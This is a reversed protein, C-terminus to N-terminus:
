AQAVLAVGPTRLVPEEDGAGPHHREVAHGAVDARAARDVDGDAGRVADLARAVIRDHEDLDLLPGVEALVVDLAEGVVVAADRGVSGAALRPAGRLPRESWESAQAPRTGLRESDGATGLSRRLTIRAM